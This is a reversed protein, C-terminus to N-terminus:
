HPARQSSANSREPLADSLLRLLREPDVPKTLHGDFGSRLAMARDEPYGYGTLAYMRLSKGSTRQRMLGALAYGDMGPLGIDMLVFEPSFAELKTLAEGGDRAAAVTHGDGELLACLMQASDQNDEVVLIRRTVTHYGREREMLRQEPEVLPLIVTFESGHGLGDSRAEVRGGHLEVIRKVITLGIGLGGQSRDLSQDAQLFLDFVQPLMQPDIGAGEDRVSIVAEESERLQASVHIVGGVPSYKAANSLLNVFVQELRVADGRVPLPRAAPTFRLTQHKEGITAQMTEMARQLASEAHLYEKKVEIMGRRIRAADLLDDVLRVLHSVQRLLIPVNRRVSQQDTDDHALIHAVYRIPALPNRLEHALMALFEDKRRDVERLAEEARKQETIDVNIGVMRLPRRREDHSVAGRCHLWRIDGTDHRRIRYDVALEGDGLAREFADLVREVDEPHICTMWAERSGRFEGKRFGHLELLEESWATRNAAIDWEFTGSRGARLALSLRHQAQELAQQARKNATVDQVLAFFGQVAGEPDRDPVYYASIYQADTARYSIETEFRTTEGSLALAVHPKVAAYASEGLVDRLHQGYLEAPRLKFWQEYARNNFRYREESDVYALLV